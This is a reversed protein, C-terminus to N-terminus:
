SFSLRPVMAIVSWVANSPVPDATVSQRFFRLGYADFLYAPLGNGSPAVRVPGFTRIFTEPLDFRHLQITM